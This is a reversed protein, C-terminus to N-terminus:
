PSLADEEPTWKAESKSFMKREAYTKTLLKWGQLISRWAKEDISKIFAQIKAKLYGYKTGDLLPPRNYIWRREDFGNSM